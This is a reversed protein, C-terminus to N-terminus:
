SHKRLYEIMHEVKAHEGTGPLFVIEDRRCFYLKNHIPQLRDLQQRNLEKLAQHIKKKQAKKKKNAEAANRASTVLVVGILFIIVLVVILGVRKESSYAFFVQYLALPLIVLLWGFAALMKSDNDPIDKHEPLDFDEMDLNLLNYLRHDKPLSSVKEVSIYSECVPCSPYEALLEPVLYSNGCYGCKVLSENPDISLQGGCSECSLQIIENNM